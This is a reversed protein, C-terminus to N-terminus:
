APLARKWDEKMADAVEEKMRDFKFGQPDYRRNKELLVNRAGSWVVESLRVNALAGGQYDADCLQALPQGGRKPARSFALPKLRHSCGNL